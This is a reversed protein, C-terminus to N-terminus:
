DQGLGPIASTVSVFRKGLEIPSAISFVVDGPDVRYGIQVSLDSATVTGGVPARLDGEREGDQWRSLDRTIKTISRTYSLYTPIDGSEYARDRLTRAEGLALRLDNKVREIEPDAIRAVVQGAKVTDGAQVLMETIVGRNWTRVEVRETLPSGTETGQEEGFPIEKWALRADFVDQWSRTMGSVAGIMAVMGLGAGMRIVWGLPVGGVERKPSHLPTSLPQSDKRPPRASTLYGLERLTQVLILIERRNVTGPFASVIDKVVDRFQGGRNLQDLLRSQWDELRWTKMQRLDYLCRRGASDFRFGVGNSLQLTSQLLADWETKPFGAM